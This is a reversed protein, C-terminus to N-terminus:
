TRMALIQGIAADSKQEPVSPQVVPGLLDELGEIAGLEPVVHLETGLHLVDAIRPVVAIPPRDRHPSQPQVHLILLGSAESTRMASATMPTLTCALWSHAYSGTGSRIM